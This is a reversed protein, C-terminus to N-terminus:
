LIEPKEHTEEMNYYSPPITLTHNDNRYGYTHSVANEWKSVTRNSVGLADALATQTENAAQRFRAIQESLLSM